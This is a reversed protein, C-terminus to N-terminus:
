QTTAILAAGTAMHEIDVYTNNKTGQFEYEEWVYVRIGNNEAIQANGQRRDRSRHRVKNELTCPTYTGKNVLGAGEIKSYMDSGDFILTENGYKSIAKGASISGGALKTTTSDTLVFGGRKEARGKKNFVVNDATVLGDPTRVPDSSKEDIGKVLAFSLTKKQLPM